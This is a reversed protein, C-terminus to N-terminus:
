SQDEEVITEETIFEWEIAAKLRGKAEEVDQGLGLPESAIWRGCSGFVVRGPRVVFVLHDSLGFAQKASALGHRARWEPFTAM